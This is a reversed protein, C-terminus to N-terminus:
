RRERISRAACMSAGMQQGRPNRRGFDTMRAPGAVRGRFPQSHTSVIEACTSPDRLAMPWRGGRRPPASRRNSHRACPAVLPTGVASGRIPVPPTHCGMTLWGAPVERHDSEAAPDAGSASQWSGQRRWNGRRHSAVGVEAGSLRAPPSPRRRSPIQRVRRDIGYRPRESQRPDQRWRSLIAVHSFRLSPRPSSRVPLFLSRRRRSFRGQLSLPSAPVGHLCTGGAGAPSPRRVAPRRNRLGAILGPSCGGPVGPRDPRDTEGAWAPM